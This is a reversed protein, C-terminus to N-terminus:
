NASLSISILIESLTFCRTISHMSVQTKPLSFALSVNSIVSFPTLWLIVGLMYRRFAKEYHKSSKCKLEIGLRDSLKKEFELIKSRGGIMPASSLNIYVFSLGSGIGLLMEESISCGHYAFVQRLATTICHKGGFPIFDNIIKSM